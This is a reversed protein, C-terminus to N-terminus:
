KFLSSISVIDAKTIEMVVENDNALGWEAKDYGPLRHIAYGRIKQVINAAESQYYNDTECAQYDYCDCLKLIQAAGFRDSCLAWKEQYNTKHPNQNERYHYNVSRYNENILTQAMKKAENVTCQNYRGSVYFGIMANITYDEVVYASM